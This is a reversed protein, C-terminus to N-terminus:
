KNYPTKNDSFGKDILWWLSADVQWQMDIDCGYTNYVPLIKNGMWRQPLLGDKMNELAKSRSVSHSMDAFFVDGQSDRDCSLESPNGFVEFPIFPELYGNDDLKRARLPSYMNLKSVTVASDADANNILAEIATDILLSDVTVVNCMLIVIIDPKKERHKLIECYGHYLADEFLASDSCLEDPRDIIHVKFKGAEAQIVEDDTSVYVDSVYQSNLAAMISYHSIPRGLISMTNKGPLGKSGKRGLIIAVSDLSM